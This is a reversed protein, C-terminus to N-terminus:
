LYLLDMTINYICPMTNNTYSQVATILNFYTTLITLTISVIVIVVCFIIETIKLFESSTRNKKKPSGFTALKGNDHVCKKIGNSASKKILMINTLSNEERNELQKGQLYLMKLYILPPLIFILPSTLTGGITSM